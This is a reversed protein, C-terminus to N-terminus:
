SGTLRARRDGIATVKGAPRSTSSKREPAPKPAVTVRGRLRDLPTAGLLSENQRIETLLKVDPADFYRDVLPALMLLRQWDTPTFTQAQASKRWTSYWAATMHGYGDPLAPGRTRGDATVTTKDAAFTDANRRRRNESPAPGMGAM